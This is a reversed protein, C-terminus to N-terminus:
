KENWSPPGWHPNILRENRNLSDLQAMDTEDLGFFIDSNDEIRKEHVSKPIAVINHEVLWALMVQAASKGHKEAIKQLTPNDLFKGRALPSYAELQIGKEQSYEVLGKQYLFVHFEVQNVAPVVDSQSALEDILAPTFNSVGISRALGEKQLEVLARWTQVTRSFNKINPWHILLLDVYDTQLKKLSTKFSRKASQYGQHMNWIKTTLFFSDRSRGSDKWGKGVQGENEYIQATDLMDYGHNLAFSVAQACDSNRSQWTGLGLYPIKQGDNLTATSHIDKAM